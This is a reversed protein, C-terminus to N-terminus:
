PDPPTIQRAAANQSQSITSPSSVNASIRRRLALRFRASPQLTEDERWAGLLIDVVDPFLDGAVGESGGIQDKVCFGHDLRCLTRAEAM